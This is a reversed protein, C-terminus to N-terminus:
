VELTPVPEDLSNLVKVSLSMASAFLQSAAVLLLGANDDLFSSVASRRPGSQHAHADKTKLLPSIEDLTPPGEGSAPLHSNSSSLAKSAHIPYASTM